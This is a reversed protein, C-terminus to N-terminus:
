ILLLTAILSSSSKRVFCWNSSCKITLFIQMRHIIGYLKFIAWFLTPDISPHYCISLFHLRPAKLSKHYSWPQHRIKSYHASARFHISISRIPREFYALDFWIITALRLITGVVQKDLTKSSILFYVRIYRCNWSEFM